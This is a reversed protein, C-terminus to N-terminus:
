RNSMEPKWRWASCSVRWWNWHRLITTASTRRGSSGASRERAAGLEAAVPRVAIQVM